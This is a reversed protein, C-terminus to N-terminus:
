QNIYFGMSLNLGINFNRSPGYGSHKRFAKANVDTVGIYSTIVPSIYFWPKPYIDLGAQALIGFDFSNYYDKDNAEPDVEYFTEAYVPVEEIIVYDNPYNLVEDELKTGDLEITYELNGSVLVGFQPGVVVALRVKQEQKYKNKKFISTYRFPMAFTIYDVGISRRHTVGNRDEDKFDLGGSQYGTHWELGWQPKFNYGLKLAGGFGITPKYALQFDRSNPFNWRVGYTNQNLVFTTTANGSFGVYFGKQAQSEKIGLAMILFVLIVGLLSRATSLAKNM